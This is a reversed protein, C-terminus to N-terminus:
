KSRERAATICEAEIRRQNSQLEFASRGNATSRAAVSRGLDIFLYIFLYTLM